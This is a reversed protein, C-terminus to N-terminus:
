IISLIRIKLHFFILKYKIEYQYDASLFEFLVKQENKEVDFPNLLIEIERSNALISYLGLYSGAKKAAHKLGEVTIGKLRLHHGTVISGDKNVCELVDMYSKKGLFISKTAYIDCGGDAGKLDFDVHFQELQKGTLERNYKEEFKSELISVDDFNCHLSDTDTYYIPLGNDNAVDFVENMIRKSYSLIACGIHARNFSKDLCTTEVEYKDSKGKFSPIKRYSVINNFNKDVYVDMPNIDKKKWVEKEEKTKKDIVKVKEYSCQKVIKHQRTSKKMITKGYSSNLMLKLVNALAPNDKKHQLRVKFLKAIVEGMKKNFGSDWYVGDLIEYEIDHFNIYDQLTISDIIVPEPPPNNTYTISTDSKYAIMPMQQTKNVKTIKVTLVCYDKNSWDVMKVLRKAVGTPLGKERCLRHIASPYLSVGDYDAFKGELVQKQYKTNCHVRGGYVAQGIYDRLNGGVEYIDDYVGEKMMYKDTLSSITLCDNISIGTTDKVLADFKMLGQKLVICDLKLYDIYYNTPNFENNENLYEKVVEDFILKEKNSLYKRYVEPKIFEDDNEKTYYSYAIAEKKSNPLDFNSAFKSLSFPIIKYSDRMEVRCRKHNVITNYLQGDKMCKNQINLYPELINYDYKLNHYYVIANQNGNNTVYNLFDYVLYQNDSYKRANYIICDNNDQGVIGFLYLEHNRNATNGSPLSGTFTETDSYFIKANNEKIEKPSILRQERDISDLYLTPKSETFNLMNGKKFYGKKMLTHVLLLSNMKTKTGKKYEGKRDGSRVGVINKFGKIDKVDEYHRISYCSYKTEEYKFYHNEYLAIEIYEETEIECMFTQYQRIQRGDFRYLKINKRIHYTIEQLDSKKFSAGREIALKVSTLTAKDIGCVRLTHIICHEYEIHEDIYDQKFIQYRKLDLDSTNVFDFYRGDMNVPAPTNLRRLRASTISEFDLEDITDSGFEEERVVRGGNMLYETLFDVSNQNVTITQEEPGRPTTLVFDIVYRGRNRLELLFRRAQIRTLREGAVVRDLVEQLRGRRLLQNISPLPPPVSPLPPPVSPLDPPFFTPLPPPFSM